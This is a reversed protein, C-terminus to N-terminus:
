FGGKIKFGRLYGKFNLAVEYKFSGYVNNSPSIFREDFCM